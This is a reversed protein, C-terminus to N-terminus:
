CAPNIRDLFRQILHFINHGSLLEPGPVHKPSTKNQYLNSNSSREAKLTFESLYTSTAEDRVSSLWSFISLDSSWRPTVHPRQGREREREKQREGASFWSCSLCLGASRYSVASRVCPSPNLFDQGDWLALGLTCWSCTIWWRRSDTCSDLHSSATPITSWALNLPCRWLWVSHWFLYCLQSM